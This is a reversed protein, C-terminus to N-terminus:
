YRYRYEPYYDDHELGIHRTREASEERNQAAADLGRQQARMYELENAHARERTMRNYREVRDRIEQEAARREMEEREREIEIPSRRPHRPPYTGQHMPPSPSRPPEPPPHHVYVYAGSSRKSNSRSPPSTPSTATPHAAAFTSISASTPRQPLPPAPSTPKTPPNARFYALQRRIRDIPIQLEHALDRFNADLQARDTLPMVPRATGPVMLRYKDSLGVLTSYAKSDGNELSDLYTIILFKIFGTRTLAAHMPRRFQKFPNQLQKDVLHYQCEMADWLLPLMWDDNKILKSFLDEDAPSVPEVDEFVPGMRKELTIFGRHSKGFHDDHLVFLAELLEMVADAGPSLNFSQYRAMVGLDGPDSHYDDVAPSAM